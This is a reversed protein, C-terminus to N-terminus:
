ARSWVSPIKPLVTIGISTLKVSYMGKQATVTIQNNGRGRPPPVFVYSGIKKKEFPHGTPFLNMSVSIGDPDVFKGHEGILAVYIVAREDQRYISKDSNMLIEISNPTKTPKLLASGVTMKDNTVLNVVKTERIWIVTM